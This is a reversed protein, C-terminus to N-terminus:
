SEGQARLDVTACSLGRANLAAAVPRYFKAKVAMAPLILLVPAAPDAAPWVRLVFSASTGESTVKLSEPADGGRAKDAAQTEPARTEPAQTESAQTESAQADASSASM